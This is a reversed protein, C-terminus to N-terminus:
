FAPRFCGRGFLFARKRGSTPSLEGLEHFGTPCCPSLGCPCLFSMRRLFTSKCRGPSSPKRLQHLSAPRRPPFSRALLRAFYDFDAAQRYNESRLLSLRPPVSARSALPSSGGRTEGYPG